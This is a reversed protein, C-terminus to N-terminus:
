DILSKFDHEDILEVFVALNKSIKISEHVDPIFIHFVIVSDDFFKRRFRLFCRNNSFTLFVNSDFWDFNNAHSSWNDIKENKIM